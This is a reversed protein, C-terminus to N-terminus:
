TDIPRYVKLCMTTIHIVDRSDRADRFPGEGSLSTPDGKLARSESVGMVRLVSIGFPKILRSEQINPTVPYVHPELESHDLILM